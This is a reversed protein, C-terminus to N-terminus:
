QPQNPDAVPGDVSGERHPDAQLDPLPRPHRRVWWRRAYFVLQALLVPVALALPIFLLLPIAHSLVFEFAFREVRPKLHVRCISIAIEESTVLGDDDTRKLDAVVPRIVKMRSEVSSHAWWGLTWRIVFRSIAQGTGEGEAKIRMNVQHCAESELWDPLGLALSEVQDLPVPRANELYARAQAVQQQKELQPNKCTSIALSIVTQFAIKGSSEVIAEKHVFSRVEFALGVTLGTLAMTCPLLVIWLALILWRYYRDFRFGMDLWGRRYLLRHALFTILIGIVIGLCTGVGTWLLFEGVNRALCDLVLRVNAVTVRTEGNSSLFGRPSSFVEM